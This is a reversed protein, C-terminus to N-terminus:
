GQLVAAVGKGVYHTVIIVVVVIAVHESIVQHPKVAQQVAMYYSFLVILSLGWVVSAILAAHLNLFVVPVMFTFAIVFKSVFTAATAEWIEQTTHKDESEESIHIGVADSFADAIAIAIIGGLVAIRSQTTANLGVIMGLTTIVGSTLGFGVGKKISTKM